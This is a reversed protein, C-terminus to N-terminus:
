EKVESFLDCNVRFQEAHDVFLVLRQHLPGNRQPHVLFPFSVADNAAVVLGVPDESPRFCSCSKSFGIIRAPQTSHNVLEVTGLQSQGKKLESEVKVTSVLPPEGVVVARLRASIPLQLAILAAVLLGVGALQGKRDSRMEKWQKALDFGSTKVSDRSRQSRLFWGVIACDILLFVWGPIELGGSCGCSQYGLLLRTAAFVAFGAFVITNIFAAVQRDRWGFNVYVLFLEFCVALWLIEKSLGIRVEAFPDTLLLWLKAIATVLLLTGILYFPLRQASVVCDNAHLSKRSRTCKLITSGDSGVIPNKVLEDVPMDKKKSM